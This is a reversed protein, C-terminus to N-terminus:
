KELNVKTICALRTKTINALRIEPNDQLYFVVATKLLLFILLEEPQHGELLKM